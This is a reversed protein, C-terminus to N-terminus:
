VAATPAFVNVITSLVIGVTVFLPISGATQGAYTAPVDNAVVLHMGSVPSSSGEPLGSQVVEVMKHVFLPGFPEVGIPSLQGCDVALFTCINWVKSAAGVATANGGPVPIPKRIPLSLQDGELQVNTPGSVPKIHGCFGIVENRPSKRLPLPPLVVFEVNIATVPTGNGNVTGIKKGFINPQLLLPVTLKFNVVNGGVTGGAFLLPNMAAGM